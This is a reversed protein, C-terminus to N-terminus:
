PTFEVSLANSFEVLGSGSFDLVLAQVATQQGVLAPNNPILVNFTGVGGVMVTQTFQVPVPALALLIEGFGPVFVGCGSGDVALNNAYLLPLPLALTVASITASFLSGIQAEPVQAVLSPKPGFCGPISLITAPPCTFRGLYSDGSSNAAEFQGGAILAAGNSAPISLL